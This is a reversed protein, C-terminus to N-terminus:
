YEHKTKSFLATAMLLASVALLVFVLGNTKTDGPIVPSHSSSQDASGESGTVDSSDALPPETETSSNSNENSNDDANGSSYVSIEDIFTWGANKTEGADDLYEGLHAITFKVYRGSEDEATLTASHTESIGETVEKATNLTGIDRFNGDETDSLAITVSSPAFIGVSTENLFGVTFATLDTYVRGLDLIIVFNGSDDVSNQNFGVYAGSSYYGTSGDPITGYIGDTLKISDDPYGESAPTVLTYPKGYSIESEEASALLIASLALTLVLILTIIKKM